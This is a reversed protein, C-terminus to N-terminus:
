ARCDSMCEFIDGTCIHKVTFYSCEAVCRNEFVIGVTTCVPISISSCNKVCQSINFAKECEIKIKPDTPDKIEYFMGGTKCEAQCQNKYVQGDLGCAKRTPKNYCQPCNNIADRCEERCRDHSRPGECTFLRKMDPEACDALCQNQYIKGNSFCAFWEKVKTICKDECSESYQRIPDDIHDPFKSPQDKPFRDTTSNFPPARVTNVRDPSISIDKKKKDKDAWWKCRDRCSKSNKICSFRETINEDKCKAFCDTLYIDGDTYCYVRETLPIECVRECNKPKHVLGQSITLSIALFLLFLSKLQVQM